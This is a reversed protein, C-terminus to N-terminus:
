AEVCEVQFDFYISREIQLRKSYFLRNIWGPTIKVTHYINSDVLMLILIDSPTLM